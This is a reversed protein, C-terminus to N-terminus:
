EKDQNRAADLEAVAAGPDAAHTVASGVILRLDGSGRLAPVHEVGLGGAVALRRGHAWTGFQDLPNGGSLQDDKVIHASLVVDRGVKSAVEACQQETLLMLDIVADGGHEAAVTTATAVTSPSAMALVTAAQAGADFALEFEYRADDATKLDALVGMTGAAERAVAEVAAMGYRKVLSTGVEVWEATGAVARTVALAAGLEMRDLAIQLDMM